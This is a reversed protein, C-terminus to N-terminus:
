PAATLPLVLMMQEAEEAAYQLTFGAHIGRKALTAKALYSPLSNMTCFVIGAEIYAMADKAPVPKEFVVVYNQPTLKAQVIAHKRKAHNWALKLRDFMKLFGNRQEKESLQKESSAITRVGNLTHTKFELYLGTGAHYFDPCARFETGQSDTFTQQFRGKASFCRLEAFRFSAKAEAISHFPEGGYGIYKKSM